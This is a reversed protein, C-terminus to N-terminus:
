NSRGGGEEEGGGSGKEEKTESEDRVRELEQEVAIMVAKSRSMDLMDAARQAMVEDPINCNEALVARATQAHTIMTDYTAMLIYRRIDTGDHDEGIGLAETVKEVLNHGKDIAEDVMSGILEALGQVVDSDFDSVDDCTGGCHECVEPDNNENDNNDSM